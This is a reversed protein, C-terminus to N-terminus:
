KFIVTWVAYIIITNLIIALICKSINEIPINKNKGWYRKKNEPYDRIGRYLAIGIISNLIVVLVTLAIKAGLAGEM